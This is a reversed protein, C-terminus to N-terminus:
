RSGTTTSARRAPASVLAEFDARGRLARFDQADGDTRLVHTEGAAVSRTLWALARRAQEDARAAAAPSTDTEAIVAACVARLRAAQRLSAADPRALAEWKEATELCGAADKKKEFYRLRLDMTWPIVRPDVAKGVARGVCEDIIPIAEAGRDLKVLSVAVGHMSQLTQPHDPGLKAQRLALTAERLALAEGDRALADYSHALNNMSRLTEPHDPGLKVKRVALTEERLRLAEDHRGLAEYTNALSMMSSLTDAHDPGRTHTMRQLTREHLRLADGHRGLAAYSNALNNMSM